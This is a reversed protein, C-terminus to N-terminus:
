REAERVIRESDGAAGTRGDAESNAQTDLLDGLGAAGRDEARRAERLEEERKKREERTLALVALPDFGNWLPLSSFTLALLSGGRLLATLFGTSVVLAM